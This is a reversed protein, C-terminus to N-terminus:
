RPISSMLRRYEAQMRAPDVVRTFVAVNRRVDDDNRKVDDHVEWFGRSDGLFSMLESRTVTIRERPTPVLHCGSCVPYWWSNLNDMNSYVTGDCNGHTKCGYGGGTPPDEQALAPSAPLTMALAAALLLGPLRATSRKM